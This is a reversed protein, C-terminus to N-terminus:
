TLNDFKVAQRCRLKAALDFNDLGPWDNRLGPHGVWRLRSSCFIYIGHEIKKVLVQFLTRFGSDYFVARIPKRAANKM